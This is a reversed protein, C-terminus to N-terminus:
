YAQHNRHVYLLVSVESSLLQTFTSTATRPDGDRILRITETSTFYCQFSFSSTLVASNDGVSSTSATVSFNYVYSGGPIETGALIDESLSKDDAKM